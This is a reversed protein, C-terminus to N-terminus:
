SWKDLWHKPLRTPKSEPMKVLALSQLCNVLLKNDSERRVESRVWFRVKELRELSSTLVLKDGLTGSSKYDVETRLLVPYIGTDAMQTLDIGMTDVCLRTRATEIMRLYALNHIVGGIDTDFFMVDEIITQTPKSM